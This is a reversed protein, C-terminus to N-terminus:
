DTSLSDKLISELKSFASPLAAEVILFPPVIVILAMLLVAGFAKDASARASLCAVAAMPILIILMFLFPILSAQMTLDVRTIPRGNEQRETFQLVVSFSGFAGRCSASTDSRRTVPTLSLRRPNIRPESDAVACQFLDLRAIAEDLPLACECSSSQSLFM